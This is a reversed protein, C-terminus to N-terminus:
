ETHLTTCLLNLILTREVFLLLSLISEGRNQVFEGRRTPFNVGTRRGGLFGPGGGAM